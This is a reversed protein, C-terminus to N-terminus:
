PQHSTVVLDSILVGTVRGFEPDIIFNLYSSIDACLQAKTSSTQVQQSHIQLALKAVETEIDTKHQALESRVAKKFAEVDDKSADPSASSNPYMVEIILKLAGYEGDSFVVNIMDFNYQGSVPIVFPPSTAADPQSNGITPNAVSIPKNSAQSQAQNTTILWWSLLGFLFVIFILVLVLASVSPKKRTTM